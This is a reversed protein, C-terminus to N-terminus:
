SMIAAKLDSRLVEPDYEEKSIESREMLFNVCFESFKSKLYALVDENDLKILDPIASKIDIDANDLFMAAHHQFLEKDVMSIADDIKKSKFLLEYYSNIEDETVRKKVVADEIVTITIFATIGMSFMWAARNKLEKVKDEVKM